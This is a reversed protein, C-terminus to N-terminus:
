GRMDPGAVSLRRSASANAANLWAPFLAALAALHVIGAPVWMILGATQQDEVVSAATARAVYSAYLPVTSFSLLAGLMGSHLAFTAVMVLATGAGAGAIAQPREVLAWFALSTLFFSLHELAHVGENALALDYPGPIHWLWLAASALLWVVTPRMLFAYTGHLAGTQMWCRGIRRRAALPLAWLWTYVPRSWVLLPPAVLMLLLHQVMHATFSQAALADLPSVLAIFLTAMGAGFCPARWRGLAREAVGQAKLRLWGRLYFGTALALSGLVWPEWSWAAGGQAHEHGAHAFAAGACCWATLAVIYSV